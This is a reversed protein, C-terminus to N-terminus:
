RTGEEYGVVAAYRIRATMTIHTIPPLGHYQLACSFVAAVHLVGEEYGARYPDGEADARAIGASMVLDKLPDPELHRCARLGDARGHRRADDLRMDMADAALADEIVFHLVESLIM